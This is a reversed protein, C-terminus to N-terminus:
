GGELNRSRSSSTKNEWITKDKGKWKEWNRESRKLYKYEFKRNNWRCLMKATYKGLLEGRRFDKEEAMDLKRHRRVETSM